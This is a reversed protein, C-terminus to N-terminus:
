SFFITLIEIFFNMIFYICVLLFLFPSIFLINKNREQAMKKRFTDLIQTIQKSESEDIDLFYGEIEKQNKIAKLLETAANM